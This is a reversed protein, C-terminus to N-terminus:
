LDKMFKPLLYFRGLEPRKIYLYEYLKKDIEKNKLMRQLETKIKNNTSPLPDNEIKEYINKDNLQNECERLYDEKDWVVVASGKDAPKIIINSDKVLNDLADRENKNLNPYNHGKEDIKIIEEELESLYMELQVYNVCPTWRSPVRFEPMESFSPTPENAYHM